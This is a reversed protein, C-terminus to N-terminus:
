DGEWIGDPRLQAMSLLQYLPRIANERTPMWYDDVNNQKFEAIEKDSLDADSAELAAIAHKLTPISEAGSKGYITRIGESKGNKEPFVGDM